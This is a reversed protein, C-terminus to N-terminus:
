GVFVDGVESIGMDAKAVIIVSDGQMFVTDGNPIVVDKGRVIFGILVNEKLKLEAIPKNCYDYNKDIVFEIADVQNNAFRYLTQISNNICDKISRIYKIISSLIIFYPSVTTDIEVNHLMSTYSISRIKTIIKRTKCSWAFMSIVLNSEDNGTLSICCDYDKIGEEILLDSNVEEGFVVTAEEFKESLEQCKKLDFEIIKVKINMKLLNSILKEGINGCGVMLVSKVPKEILKIKKLFKHMRVTNALVYVTDGVELKINENNPIIIKDNRVICGINIKDKYKAKINQITEGILLSDERLIIESMNIKSEWFREIKINSPYGVIRTIEDATTRESNIVLDINFQEKLFEDNSKYELNKVKAITYKAGLHKATLCSMLNIEDTDTLAIVIDALECKAKTQIEKSAGSGVIANVEYKNTFKNLLEKNLDIVTVDHNKQILEKVLEQGVQGLGIVIIKM